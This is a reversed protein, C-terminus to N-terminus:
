LQDILDILARPDIPKTMHATFGSALSKERDNFMSYGTVAIMPINEYGPMDRLVKALQYGNMEPMGIDSIVIDFQQERAFALAGSASNATVVRYGAHTLLVALMETVDSVDDVILARRKHQQPQEFTPKDQLDNSVPQNQPLFYHQNDYSLLAAPSWRYVPYVQM